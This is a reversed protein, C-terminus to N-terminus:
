CVAGYKTKLSEIAVEAATRLTGVMVKGAALFNEKAQWDCLDSIVRVVSYRIGARRSFDIFAYTEMDTAVIKEDDATELTKMKIMHDQCYFMATRKAGPIASGEYKIPEAGDDLRESDYDSQIAQFPQVMDAISLGKYGGSFGCLIFVKFRMMNAALSYVTNIKGIGSLVPTVGLAQLRNLDM